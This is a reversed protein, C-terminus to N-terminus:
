EELAVRNTLHDDQSRATDFERLRARLSPFNNQAQHTRSLRETSLAKRLVVVARGSLRHLFRRRKHPLGVLEFGDCVLIRSELAIDGTDNQSRQILQFHPKPLYGGFLDSRAQTALQDPQHILQALSYVTM